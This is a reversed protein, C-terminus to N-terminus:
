LSLAIHLMALVNSKTLELAPSEYSKWGKEKKIKVQGDELSLRPSRGSGNDIVIEEERYNLYEYSKIRDNDKLFGLFEETFKKIEKNM